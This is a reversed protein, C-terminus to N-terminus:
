QAGALRTLGPATAEHAHLFAQLEAVIALAIAEPTRGGLALGVPAHLRRRLRTAAETGLEGLLRDRRQPPGLLGVYPVESRALARLYALDTPLHHSMIVAARFQELGLATGLEAADLRLVQEAGPFHAPDAYAPRHDVLTVKWNLRMAFEAVPAADPGAGLLLLRPPLALCLLFWSVDRAEAVHWASLGRGAADELAAQLRAGGSEGPLVVTGLPVDARTSECAFAVALAERAELAGRLRELPQWGDEPGVRRLLIRMAGECGLGLGWLLEEPGRLEYRVLRAQGDTLVGAAHEKLDGELCGGSLLGAYDGDQTILILAGAKQYTSGSTHVLVGLVLARGARREREFLPLLPGLSASM